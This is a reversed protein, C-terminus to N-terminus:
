VGCGFGMELGLSWFVRGGGGWRVSRWALTGPRTSTASGPVLTEGTYAPARRIGLRIHSWPNSEPISTTSINIRIYRTAM